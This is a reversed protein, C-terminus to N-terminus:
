PDMDLRSPARPPGSVEQRQDREFIGIARNGFGSNPKVVFRDPVTEDFIEAASRVPPSCKARSHDADVERVHRRQGAKDRFRRLVAPDNWHLDLLECLDAAVEFTDERYPVIGAVNYRAHVTDVFAGLDDHRVDLVAEILDSTLIPYQREGYFRGKCDTYFCVPRLGFYTFITRIFQVADDDYPDQILYTTRREAM